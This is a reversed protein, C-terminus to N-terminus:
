KGRGNRRLRKRNIKSKKANIIEKQMEKDLLGMENVKGRKRKKWVDM